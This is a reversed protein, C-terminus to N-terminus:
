ENPVLKPTTRRNSPLDLLKTGSESCVTDGDVDFAFANVYRIKSDNTDRGADSIWVYQFDSIPIQKVSNGHPWSDIGLVPIRALRPHTCDLILNAVGDPGLQVNNEFAAQSSDPDLVEPPGPDIVLRGLDTDNKAKNFADDISGVKGGPLVSVEDGVELQTDLGFRINDRLDNANFLIGCNGTVCENKEGNEMKIEILSRSAAPDLIGFPLDIGRSMGLACTAVRSVHVSGVGFAAAFSTAQDRSVSVELKTDGSSKVTVDGESWTGFENLNTLTYEEAKDKQEKSKSEQLGALCGLDASSQEHRAVENIHALDVSIAAVGCFVLSLVIILFTAALGDEQRLGASLYETM